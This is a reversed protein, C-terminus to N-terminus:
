GHAEVKEVVLKDGYQILGVEGWHNMFILTVFRFASDKRTNDILPRIDDFFIEYADQLCQQIHEKYSTLEFEKSKAISELLEKPIASSVMADLSGTSFGM